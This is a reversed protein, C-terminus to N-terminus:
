AIEKILSLTVRASWLNKLTHKATKIHIKEEIRKREIFTKWMM